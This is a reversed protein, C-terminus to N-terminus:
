KEKSNIVITKAWIDGLRQNNETNKILLIGVLGLFFMDIPDLLHRKFSQGFTLKTNEMSIPKLDVAYNGLTKGFLQEAGITMIGWFIMPIFMPLGSVQKVGEDTIEGFISIFVYLFSYIILYDIIGAFIRKGIQPKTEIEM